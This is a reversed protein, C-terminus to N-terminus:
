GRGGCEARYRQCNGQGTEGRYDKYACARRLQECYSARGGCEERYRRCNGEGAEGRQFKYACARRLSECYGRYQVNEIQPGTQKFGGSTMGGFAASAAQTSALAMGITVIAGALANRM